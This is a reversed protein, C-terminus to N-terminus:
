VDSQEWYEGLNNVELLFGRHPTLPPTPPAPRPDWTLSLTHGPQVLLGAEGALEGCLGAGAVGGAVGGVRLQGAGCQTDLDLLRLALGRGGAGALRWRCVRGARSYRPYHPSALVQLADCCHPGACLLAGPTGGGGPVGRGTRM